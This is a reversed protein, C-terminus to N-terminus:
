GENLDSSAKQATEKRAVLLRACGTFYDKEETTLFEWLIYLSEFKPDRGVAIWFSDGFHNRMRDILVFRSLKREPFDLLACLRQLLPLSPLVEGCSMKRVHAYSCGLESALVKETLGQRAMGQALQESFFGLNKM